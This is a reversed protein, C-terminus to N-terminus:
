QNQVSHQTVGAMFLDIDNPISILNGRTNDNSHLNFDPELPSKAKSFGSSLIRRGSSSRRKGRETIFQNKDNLITKPIYESRTSKITSENDNMKHKSFNSSIEFINVNNGPNPLDVVAAKIKNFM